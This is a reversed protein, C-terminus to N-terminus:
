DKIKNVVAYIAPIYFLNLVTGWLLGFGLSIALPQMIVAEGVAYFMLTSLGIFTTITTILIPRLRQKARKFFQERDRTGHLFELMIIGDNIVVGALGFMGVISPMALHMGMIKHGLLAGFISFPIVSIIMLPYKIKPFIILLMLVILLVAVLLAKLMDQKMQQNKEKEGKLKVTIGQKKIENLLPDLQELVESATTIKKNVNASVKKVILGDEKNIIEYDQVKIFEVVKSLTVYQGNPTPLSFNKLTELNDKHLEQTVIDVVGDNGFTTTKKSGLFYSSLISAIYGESLNLTHAYDNLKLKYEVKGKKVNNSFDKVGKIVSLKQEVKTIAQNTLADDNSIFNIQVDTKVIGPKRQAVGLEIM